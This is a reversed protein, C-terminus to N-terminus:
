SPEAMVCIEHSVFSNCGMPQSVSVPRGHIVDRLTPCKKVGRRGDDRMKNNLAKYQQLLIMSGRGRKNDNRRKHVVGIHCQNRLRISIYNSTWILSRALESDDFICSLLYIPDPWKVSQCALIDSFSTILSFQLEAWSFKLCFECIMTSSILLHDIRTKTTTLM